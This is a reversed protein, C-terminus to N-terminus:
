LTESESRSGGFERLYIESIRRLDTCLILGPLMFPKQLAQGGAIIRIERNLSNRLAALDKKAQRTPYHRSFSLAVAACDTEEAIRPIESLPLEEQILRCRAGAQQFLTASMMLGLKHREGCLTLFILLPGQASPQAETLQNKLLDSIMDSVMHERAISLSGDSWHRDLIGTIPILREFILNAVGQQELVTYLRTELEALAGKLILDRDIAVDPPLQETQEQLLQLRQPHTLSFIRNPRYGLTQLKRVTRLEELQGPPYRRHGRSDRSPRPFGYRREWIRLTDVGISLESSLQQISLM